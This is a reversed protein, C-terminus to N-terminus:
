ELMIKANILTNARYTRIKNKQFYNSELEVGYNNLYLIVPRKTTSLDKKEIKKIHKISLSDNVHWIIKDKDKFSFEDLLEKKDLIFAHIEYNKDIYQKIDNSIFFIYNDLYNNIRTNEPCTIFFFVFILLITKLNKLFCLTKNKIKEEFGLILMGQFLFFIGYMSLLIRLEAIPKIFISILFVIGIVSILTYVLYYFINKKKSDTQNKFVVSTILYIITILLIIIFIVKNNFYYKMIKGATIINLPEIWSNFDKELSNKLSILLYPIMTMSVIFNIVIFKILEKKDKLLKFFGWIFNTFVYVSMIFHTNLAIMSLFTYFILDKSKKNNLYKILFYSVLVGLLMCLSYSRMNQSSSINIINISAFFMMFLAFNKNIQKFFMFVSLPFCIGFLCPLFKLSIRGFPFIKYFLMEFIYFCPPNGADKFCSSFNKIAFNKTYLEDISLNYFDLHYVRLFISLLIAILFLTYFINSKIKFNFQNSYFYYILYCCLLGIYPYIFYRCNFFLSLFFIVFHNFYGRYNSKIDKPLIIQYYKEKTYDDFDIETTKNEFKLLDDKSYYYKNKGVYIYVDKLKNLFEEKNKEPYILSYKKVPEYIFNYGYNKRNFDISYIGSNFENVLNSCFDNFCVLPMKSTKSEFELNISIDDLPFMLNKIEFFYPQVYFTKIITFLSYILLIWFCVQVTSIKKMNEM